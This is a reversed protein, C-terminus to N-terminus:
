VNNTTDDPVHLRNLRITLLVHSRLDSQEDQLLRIKTWVLQRDTSMIDQRLSKSVASCKLLDAISMGLLM